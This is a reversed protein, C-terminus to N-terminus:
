PPRRLRVHDKVDDLPAAPVELKRDHETLRASGGYICDRRLILISHGPLAASPALFGDIEDESLVLSALSQCPGHDDSCLGARSCIGFQQQTEEDTFDLVWIDDVQVLVPITQAIQSLDVLPADARGM